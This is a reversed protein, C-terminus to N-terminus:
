RGGQSVPTCSASAVSGLGGWKLETTQTIGNCLNASLTGHHIFGFLAALSEQQGYAPALRDVM